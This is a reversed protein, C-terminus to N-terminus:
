NWFGVVLSAPGISRTTAIRLGCCAINVYSLLLATASTCADFDEPVEYM